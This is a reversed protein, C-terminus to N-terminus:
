ETIQILLAKKLINQLLIHMSQLHMTKHSIYHKRYKTNLM